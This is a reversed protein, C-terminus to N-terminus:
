EDEVETFDVDIFKDDQSSPLAHGDSRSMANNFLDALEGTVGHEVATKQGFERNHRRDLLWKRTDIMLKARPVDIADNDAIELLNQAESFTRMDLSQLCQQRFKSDNRIWGRVVTIPPM